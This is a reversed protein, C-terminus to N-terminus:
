YPLANVRCLYRMFPAAAACAASFAAFFGPATVEADTLSFSAVFDKRKLDEAMPHDPAYGRPVRTLSDGTLDFLARFRRDGRAKKWSGPDGDIAERIRALTPGDPRWIGAAVFSQKPEIHLYFGPTHPDSASRHRFQIGLHTKYPRKDRGFRVDRHIRFLSGGVPRPDASFHPSIKQLAPGFDVIFRQAPGRAAEEYREKNELFWDRRNNRALDRLFKFTEPTFHSRTKM